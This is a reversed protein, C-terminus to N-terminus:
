HCSDSVKDLWCVHAEYSDSLPDTHSFDISDALSYVSLGSFCLPGVLSVRLGEAADSVRSSHLASM